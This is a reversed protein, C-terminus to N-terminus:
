QGKDETETGPDSPSGNLRMSKAQIMTPGGRGLQPSAAAPTKGASGWELIKLQVKAKQGGMQLANEGCRPANKIEEDNSRPRRGM